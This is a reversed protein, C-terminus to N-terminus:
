IDYDNEKEEEVESGISVSDISNQDENVEQALDYNNEIKEPDPEVDTAMDYTQDNASSPLLYGEQDTDNAPNYSAYLNEETHEYTESANDYAYPHVLPDVMDDEVSNEKTAHIIKIATNNSSQKNKEHGRKWVIFLAILLFVVAPAAWYTYTEQGQTSKSDKKFITVPLPSTENFLEEKIKIACAIYDLQSHYAQFQIADFPYQTFFFFSDYKGFHRLALGVM